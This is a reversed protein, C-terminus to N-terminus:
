NCTIENKLDEIIKKFINLISKDLKWRTLDNVLEGELYTIPVKPLMMSYGTTVVGIGYLDNPYNNDSTEKRYRVVILQVLDSKEAGSTNKYGFVFEGSLLNSHMSNYIDTAAEMTNEWGWCNRLQVAEESMDFATDAEM